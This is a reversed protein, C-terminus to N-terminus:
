AERGFVRKAYGVSAMADKGYFDAGIVDVYEQTLVAGGVMVRVGPCEARLLRITEAMAPVTTTMLASLGVLPAGSDKVAAVVAEPPVDKGLDIVHFQYNELLVKVINKGIDHIDGFVTAIVITDESTTVATTMRSKLAEFAAKAAEASMLLQPLFLTGNEFGRGVVDLAPVLSENIVTLPEQGSVLAENALAAAQDSLGKIVADTLTIGGGTPVAAVATDGAHREIYRACQPDYGSLACFADYATMMADSCPNVIGADLGRQLAMTFFTANIKERVPLGFSVNSVGLVTKVGLEKKILALSELTVRAADESASVPLTLADVLIERRDIGLQEAREVIRTAIALRGEPTDPIGDEDLTLAVVGGGYKKVLPLVAAMSGEKGNVSNILPKGNYIRLAAEMAVPDSTDLQLPLATVKQLEQVVRPLREAEDIDPLGVNVDLIDAGREEQALGERLIYDVDDELLAQRFRKKGTPNIREGIIVPREGIAVAGAYSSVLLTDYHPVSPPTIDGCASVLAELHAPTTGCCGGVAACLKAIPRMQEAFVAPPVDYVTKGAESRPLGANPNIVLPLSCCARLENALPLMAEPGMGCNLGIATVGLGELLATAAPIDAGTLLKGREDFIMTCLIPLDSNEKAALVAAKLEYADSMTEILICVAGAKEGAKVMEAFLSVADEFGLDGLPKLLKGTPGIDLAVFADVGEKAIATKAIAVAAQVAEEATKDYPALKLDNAGFTNTKLIRCGAQLYQRHIDEVVEPRELTWLDPPYGDPLAAAQLMTGM